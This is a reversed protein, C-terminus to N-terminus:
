SMLFYVGIGVVGLLSFGWRANGAEERVEPYPVAGGRLVWRLGAGITRVIRIVGAFLLECIFEYIIEILFDLM